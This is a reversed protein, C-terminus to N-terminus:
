LIIISSIFFIIFILPFILSIFKFIRIVWRTKPLKIEHEQPYPERFTLSTVERLTREIEKIKKTWLIVHILLLLCRAMRTITFLRSTTILKLRNRQLSLNWRGFLFSKWATDPFHATDFYQGEADIWTRFVYWRKEWSPREKQHPCAEKSILYVLMKVQKKHYKLLDKFLFMLNQIQNKLLDFISYSVPFGLIELKMLLMKMPNREIATPLKYDKKLNM